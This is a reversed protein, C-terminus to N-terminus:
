RRTYDSPGEDYRQQNGINYNHIGTEKLYHKESAM